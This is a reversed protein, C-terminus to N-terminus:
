LHIANLLSKKARSCAVYYLNLSELDSETLKPPKDGTLAAAIFEEMLDQISFNLDNTITVEDWELGKSSHATTLYLNTKVKEHKKAEEFTDIIVSKGKSFVLKIAQVLSYDHSHAAQIYLLHNKYKERLSPTEFWDDVDTQLHKYAPDTIKGQYTLYCIVLPLKFIEAASRILTYPTGSSNLEIMKGILGANTRAIYARDKITKNPYKIGTFRMNKDIYSQCFEQIRSAIHSSVRFSQTLNFHTGEDALKTFANITHNFTYINQNNDGVAVKVKAPILKFIELTVENIDGVEDLLLFDIKKFNIDGSALLIHFLKLYFDHTCEIEGSNMKQLYKQSLSSVVSSIEKEKAFSEFDTYNSLCFEKITDIVEAKIEYQVKDTIARYNFLGIRLKFQKVTNRFALSHTTLCDISSPFKKSAETAISKNYALYMGTNHPVNSVIQTLLYTKGSGAIANVLVLEDKTRHKIHDVILQQEDTLNSM